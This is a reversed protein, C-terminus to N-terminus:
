SSSQDDLKRLGTVPVHEDAVYVLICHPCEFTNQDEAVAEASALTM